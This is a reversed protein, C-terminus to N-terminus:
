RPRDPLTIDPFPPSAARREEVAERIRREVEEGSLGASYAKDGDWSRAAIAASDVRAREREAKLATALKLKHAAIKWLVAALLLAGVTFVAVMVWIWFTKCVPAQMPQGACYSVYVFWQELTEVGDGAAAGPGSRGRYDIGHGPRM